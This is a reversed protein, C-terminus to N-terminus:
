PNVGGDPHALTAAFPNASARAIRMAATAAARARATAAGEEAVGSSGPKSPSPMAAIGANWSEGAVVFGIMFM